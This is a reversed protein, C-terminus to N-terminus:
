NVSICYEATQLILFTLFCQILQIIEFSVMSQIHLHVVRTWKRQGDTIFGFYRPYLRQLRVASVHNRPPRSLLLQPISCHFHSGVICVSEQVHTLRLQGSKEGMKVADFLYNCLNDFFCSCKLICWTQYSSGLIVSAMKPLCKKSMYNSKKDQDM